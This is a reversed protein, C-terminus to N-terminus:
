TLVGTKGIAKNIVMGASVQVCEGMGTGCALRYGKLVGRNGEGGGRLGKLVERQVRSGGRGKGRTYRGM